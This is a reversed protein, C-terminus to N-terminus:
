GVDAVVSVTLGGSLSNLILATRVQSASFAVGYDGVIQTKSGAPTFIIDYTGAALSLYGTATGNDHLSSFNPSVGSISTGSTVVYVDVSGYAVTAPSANIIRLKFDGSSPTANDDALFSSSNNNSTNLYALATVTSGSNLDQTTDIVPTSSGTPEIQVHRSGSKVSSYSSATGYFLSAAVKTGDILMDLDSQTPMANLLRIHANSSGGCSSVFLALGGIGVILFLCIWARHRMWLREQSAGPLTAAATLGAHDSDRDVVESTALSALVLSFHKKVFSLHVGKGVLGANSGIKSLVV